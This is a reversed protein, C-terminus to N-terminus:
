QKKMGVLITKFHWHFQELLSSAWFCCGVGSATRVPKARLKPLLKKKHERPVAAIIDVLRPSSELSYKSALRTKIRNLNVDNGEEQAKLLERLIDGICQVLREERSLTPAPFCLWATM